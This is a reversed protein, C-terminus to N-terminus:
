SKNVAPSAPIPAPTEKKRAAFAIGICLAYVVLLPVALLMQSVVDPPSFVGAVIFIGVVFYRVYRLLFEHTLLGLKAFFFSILPLEFVVGFVLVMKLVFSFYEGVRIAPTVNISLFEQSFFHFAVPLVAKFCFLVGLIFSLSSFFVFPLAFKREKPHLGPAVFLWLQFFSFPISLIVGASIAVKLKCLFAESPGTGILELKGFSDRIPGTLLAFLPEVWNYAIATCITVGILTRLIRTRLERLHDSFPMEAFYDPKNPM